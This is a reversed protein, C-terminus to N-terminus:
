GLKDETRHVLGAAIGSPAFAVACCVATTPRAVANIAVIDNAVPPPATRAAVRAIIPRTAPM